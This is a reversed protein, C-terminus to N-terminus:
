CFVTYVAILFRQFSRIQQWKFKDYHKALFNCFSQFQGHNIKNLIQIKIQTKPPYQINKCKHRGKKGEREFRWKEGWQLVECGHFYSIQKTSDYM